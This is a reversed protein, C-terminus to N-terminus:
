SKECGCSSSAKASAASRRAGSSKWAPRATGGNARSRAPSSSRLGPAWTTRAWQAIASRCATQARRWGFTRKSVDSQFVCRRARASRRPRGRAAARRSPRGTSCASRCATWARGGARRPRPAVLVAAAVDRRAARRRQERAVRARPEARRERAPREGRVRAQARVLVQEHGHRQDPLLHAVADAQEREGALRQALRRASAVGGRELEQRERLAGPRELDLVAIAALQERDRPEREPQTSSASASTM